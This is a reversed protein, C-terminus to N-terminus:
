SPETLLHSFRNTTGSSVSFTLHLLRPTLQTYAHARKAAAKPLCVYAGTQELGAKDALENTAHKGDM